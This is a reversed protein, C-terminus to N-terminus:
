AGVGLAVIEACADCLRTVHSYHLGHRFETTAARQRCRECALPPIAPFCAALHALFSHWLSKRASPENGRAM